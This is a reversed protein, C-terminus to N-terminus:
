CDPWVVTFQVADVVNVCVTVVASDATATPSQTVTVPVDLLPFIVAVETLMEDGEDEPLQVL